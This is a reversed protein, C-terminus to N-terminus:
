HPPFFFFLYKEKLRLSTYRRWGELPAKIESMDGSDVHSSFGCMKDASSLMMRCVLSVEYIAKKVILFSLPLARALVSFYM